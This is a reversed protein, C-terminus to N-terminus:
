DLSYENELEDANVIFNDGEPTRLIVDRPGVSSITYRIGSTKHIVKLEPSLVPQEEKKDPIKANMALDVEESLLTLRKEWEERMIRLIDDEQLTKM